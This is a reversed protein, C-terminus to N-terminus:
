CTMEIAQITFTHIGVLVNEATYACESLEIKTGRYFLNYTLPETILTDDVRETPPVCTLDITAASALNCLGMLLVFIFKRM